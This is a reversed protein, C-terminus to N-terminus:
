FLFFWLLDKGLEFKSITANGGDYFVVDLADTLQLYENQVSFSHGIIPTPDASLPVLQPEFVEESRDIEPGLAILSQTTIDPVPAESNFDSHTLESFLLKDSSESADRLNLSGIPVLTLEGDEDVSIGLNDINFISDRDFNSVPLRFTSQLSEMLAMLGLDSSGSKSEFNVQDEGEFNINNTILSKQNEPQYDTKFILEAAGWFLEYDQVSTSVNEFAANNAAFESVAQLEKKVVVSGNRNVTDQEDKQEGIVM